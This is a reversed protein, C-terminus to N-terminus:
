PQVCPPGSPVQSFVAMSISLLSGQTTTVPYIRSPLLSVQVAISGVLVIAEVGGRSVTTRTMPSSPVRRPRSRVMCESRQWHMTSRM